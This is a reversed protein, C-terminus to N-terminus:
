NIIYYPLIILCNFYMNWIVEYFDNLNNVIDSENWHTSDHKNGLDIQSLYVIHGSPDVVIFFIWAWTGNKSNYHKRRCKADGPTFIELITGDVFLFLHNPFQNRLEEPHHLLWEPFDLFQIQEKAWPYLRDIWEEM